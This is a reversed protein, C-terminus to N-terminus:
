GNRVTVEEVPASKTTNRKGLNGFWRSFFRLPRKNSPVQKVNDLKVKQNNYTFLLATEKGNKPVYRTKPNAMEHEIQSVLNLVTPQGIPPPPRFQVNRIDPVDQCPDTKPPASTFSPKSAEAHKMEFPFQRTTFVFM